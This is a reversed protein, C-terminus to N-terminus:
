DTQPVLPTLARDAEFEATLHRVVDDLGGGARTIARQRETSSGADALDLVREVADLSGLRRATPRVTDVLRDLLERAGSREVTRDRIHHATAAAHGTASRPEDDTHEVILEADLGYRAALWRNQRTSWETPPPPLTGEDIREICWAVLAQALAGVAVSEAVTSMADCMRLEVTGFNPHPRIDWWVERVTEICATDIMTEMFAEFDSWEAIQPPLGATPLSEFVLSRASSMGSDVGEFFPSSTSLGLFVPLHRTLENVITVAHQGSPVGVHVHMGCILLRRAPWQMTDVLQHYRPNPSILQRDAIAFPHTGSSAMKAGRQAVAPRLEDITALLDDAAEGPTRCVGTIVEVTSQFLEHKAKPHEGDPHPAGADALLDVAIPALDGTVSDVLHIEMEIGMTPHANHTFDIGM